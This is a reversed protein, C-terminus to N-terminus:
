PGRRRRRLDHHLHRPGDPDPAAHLDGRGARRGRRGAGARDGAHAPAHRRRLGLRERQVRPLADDAEADARGRLRREQQRRHDHRARDAEGRRAPRPRPHGDAPLLRPQRRAARRPDADGYLEPLGYVAQALNAPDHHPEGYWQAYVNPDRLRYDASLDIVRIGRALLPPIAEMSAGHPLCGFAVQVGKAALADADFPECACTSGAPSAPHCDPSRSDRRPVHRRRDRRAPAAAPDQDARRGHLGSGGLIAVNVRNM